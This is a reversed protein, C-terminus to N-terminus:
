LPAITATPAGPTANDVVINGGSSVLAGGNVAVLGNSNGSITSRAFTVSAGTGNSGLGGLNNSSITETVTLANVAGLSIALVGALSNGSILSGSISTHVAGATASSDIVVGRTNNLIRSNRISVFASGSGTPAIQIASGTSGTGSESITTDAINVYTTGASNLLAVGYGASPSRAGMIASNQINVTGAALIRVGNLGTSAGISGNIYLGRLTVVDTAGANITVGTTSSALIGGFGPDTTITISKTITVTGFGGPDLVNIEGGAATKSIAGAFTKCPATRSCPNVDDGVGSVWTRTAQASSIGPAAFCALTLGVLLLHKTM